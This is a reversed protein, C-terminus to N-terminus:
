QLHITQTTVGEGVKFAADAFKPPGFRGKADRSIGVPEQPIGIFNSDLVRNGNVDAFAAVAYEGPAINPISLETKDGTAIVASQISKGDKTPFDDANSHVAVFLRKGSISKGLLTLKLEGAQATLSFVIAFLLATFKM